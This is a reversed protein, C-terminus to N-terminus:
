IGSSFVFMEITRFRVPINNITGPQYRFNRATSLAAQDLIKNFGKLITASEVNGAKDVIVQIRVVGAQMAGAANTGPRTM